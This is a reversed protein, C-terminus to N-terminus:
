SIKGAIPVQRGAGIAGDYHVYGVTWQMGPDPPILGAYSTVQMGTIPRGLGGESASVHTAAAGGVIALALAALRPPGLLSRKRTPTTPM